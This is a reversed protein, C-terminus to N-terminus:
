CEEKRTLFEYIEDVNMALFEKVADEDELKTAINSLIDIHEGANAAIGIVINAQDGDWDTGDPFLLVAIGASTIQDKASEIGHPLAIGNGMYTAFTKERELMAEVYSSEVYGSNVLLNGVKRIVEEKPAGKCNLIINEKTLLETKVKKEKKSFIM